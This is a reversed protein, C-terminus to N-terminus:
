RDSPREMVACPGMTVLRSEADLRINEGTNWRSPGGADFSGEAEDRDIPQGRSGDM